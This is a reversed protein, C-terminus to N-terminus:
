LFCIEVISAIRFDVSCILNSILLSFFTVLANKSRELGKSEIFWLISNRLSSFIPKSSSLVLEISFQKLSLSCLNTKFPISDSQILKFLPTGCPVIKPGRIKLM